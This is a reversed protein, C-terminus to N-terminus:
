KWDIREILGDGTIQQSFESLTDILWINGQYLFGIYEANILTSKPAWAPAQPEIGTLGEPPFITKRNSGDRDMIVLRYRSTESQNPFIAQLFGVKFDIKDSEGFNPSSSPYSFMGTQLVLQINTNNIMSIAALNFFPSEEASVLDESPAHTSIYLSNSDTGWNIGPIWAWDRRTLLPTVTTLPKLLGEDLDVLGIEDPRSYALYNGDPSWSYTTGWWGYAGGSNADVILEPKSTWGSSSFALTYLDNNAQWKPSADRPEVTSYAIMESQDPVWSAYLVINSIKLNIPEPSERETSVVWLTNIEQDASKTSKRTFLLWDGKPSLTFIRGDLDSTTVLPTRIATSGDMIWANGVSLYALKGPISLPSFPMQVGYMVIEPIAPHVIIEKVIASASEAGDEYVIRYTIEKLGNVGPQILRAQDLAISESRLEQHTYPIIEQETKFEERVRIVKISLGETLITFLPPEVKDLPGIDIGLTELTNLINSGAPLSAQQITGDITISVTTETQIVKPSGCGTIFISLILFFLLKKLNGMWAIRSIPHNYLLVNTVM